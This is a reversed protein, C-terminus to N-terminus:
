AAKRKREARNICMSAEDTAEGLTLFSREFLLCGGADRVIVRWYAGMWLTAKDIENRDFGGLRVPLFAFRRTIRAKIRDKGRGSTLIIM